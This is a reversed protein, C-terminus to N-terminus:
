LVLVMNQWNSVDNIVVNGWAYIIQTWIIGVAYPMMNVPWFSTVPMHSTKNIICLGGWSIDYILIIVSTLSSSIGNTTYLWAHHSNGILHISLVSLIGWCLCNHSLALRPHEKRDMVCWICCGHRYNYQDMSMNRYYYSEPCDEYCNNNM